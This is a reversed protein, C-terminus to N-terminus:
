WSRNRVRRRVSGVPWGIESANSGSDIRNRPVRMSVPLSCRNDSFPLGALETDICMISWQLSFGPPGPRPVVPSSPHAVFPPRRLAPSAPRAVFPPRRVVPSTPRAVRPPRRPAPSPPTTAPYRALPHPRDANDLGVQRVRAVARDSRLAQSSLTRHTRRHARWRLRPRHDITRGPSYHGAGEAVHQVISEASRRLQDAMSGNRASAHAIRDVSTARGEDGARRRGGAPGNGVDPRPGPM